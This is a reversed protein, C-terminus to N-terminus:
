RQAKIIQAAIDARMKRIYTESRGMRLAMEKVELQPQGGLGFTYEIVKKHENSITPDWYVFRVLELTEDTKNYDADFFDEEDSASPSMILDNRLEKEMRSVESVSWNLEDALELITPERNLKEILATKINHYRSIAIARNEPIRGVNQYDSVFRQLHKLHNTVHTSLGAKEPDYDEFAKVALRRAEAEISVRPIPAKSFKDVQNQVLPDLSLVLPGLAEKDGMQVRQWLELERQKINQKYEEM